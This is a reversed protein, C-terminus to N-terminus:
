NRLASKKNVLTRISPIISKLTARCKDKFEPNKELLEVILPSKEYYLKIIAKGKASKALVEDRFQRLLTLSEPDDELAKEAACSSSAEETVFTWIPGETIGGHSDRAVVKWKYSTAPLLNDAEYRNNTTIIFFKFDTSTGFYVDYSVTDGSDPDSGDWTLIVDKPVKTAGDEPYPNSPIHPPSNVISTTTSSTTLPLITTTSKVTTTIPKVTTTTPQISTTIPPVTTTSSTQEACVTAPYGYWPNTFGTSGATYCVTFNDSCGYFVNGGM